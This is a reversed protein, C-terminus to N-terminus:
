KVYLYDRYDYRRVKGLEAWYAYEEIYAAVNQLVIPFHHPLGNTLFTNALDWAKIPEEYFKLENVWGRSGSFSPKDPDFFKGTVYYFKDGEGSIRFITVDSKKFILDTVPGANKVSEAYDAFYHKECIVGRENAMEFPASGCHWLLLSQDAEDFKALDMLAVPQNTIKQLILMSITGMVDAECGASIGDSNLLSNVLCGTMEKLPMLKPWCSFAVASYGNERCIKKIALYMKVSDLVKQESVRSIKCTGLVKKYVQSVEAEPMKDGLAIIDEVEYDRTVDVGLYQYIARPNAMHNIHGDALKGIQAVRSNKIAKLASLAKITIDFRPKFFKSAMDGFFWKTKVPKKLFNHLSIGVNQSINVFSAFTMPGTESLEEIAWLGFNAGSKMIEYVNDGIIYSPHFLIVFDLQSAEIEKRINQAQEMNQMVTDIVHLEFGYKDAMKALDKQYSKFYELGKTSFGEMFGAVFGVKLKEM